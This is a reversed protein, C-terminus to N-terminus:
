IPFFAEMTPTHAQGPLGPPRAGAIVAAAKEHEREAADYVIGTGNQFGFGEAARVGDQSGAAQGAAAGRSGDATDRAATLRVLM